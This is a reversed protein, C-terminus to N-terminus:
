PPPLRLTAVLKRQEWTAANATAVQLVFYPALRLDGKADFAYSGGAGQFGPIERLAATVQARTPVTGAGGAARALARLALGAGDYAQLAFPPPDDGFRQRYARTFAETGPYFATPGAVATFHLGVVGPGGIRALEPVDLWDPGLLAARVNRERLQRALQGARAFTLALYVVDPHGAALTAAVSALDEDTVTVADIVELGRSGSSQRFAAAVTRGEPTGDDVIFARRARLRTVAFEAAAQGQVDDRGVMRRVNGLGRATLDPHSNAPSILMLGARAYVASAPLAVNSTLHGIVLVARPDVAIAEAHAVGAPPTARDDFPKTVVDFGMRSIEAAREEVALRVGNRIGVGLQARDGTLPSQTALIVAPRFPTPVAVPRRLRQGCSVSLIGLGAIILLTASLRTSRAPSRGTM